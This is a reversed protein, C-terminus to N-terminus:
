RPFIISKAICMFYTKLKAAECKMGEEKNEIYIKAALILM